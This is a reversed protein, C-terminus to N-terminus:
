GNRKRENRLREKGAVKDGIFYDKGYEYSIDTFIEGTFTETKLCEAIKDNGQGILLKSKKYETPTLEGESTNSSTQRADVWITRRNLAQKEKQTHIPLCM